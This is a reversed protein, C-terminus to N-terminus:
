VYHYDNRILGNKKMKYYFDDPIIANVSGVNHKVHYPNSTNLSVSSVGPAKLAFNVCANMPSVEFERCIQHFEERWKFLVKNEPMDPKIKKYDYYEGGLLFGAQFVASNIIAIGKEKLQEMFQVLEPPHNMITMSNAFMIWDLEVVDAIKQIVKWNKAGIGIAKVFGLSKLEKLAKYAELIDIFRHEYEKETIANNLYEDPDHVSLLQPIYRKGLLENGQQFCEIIGNYSINQVADFKLGKWVGPEFVPESTTLSTRLWGLKNSIIVKEPEVQLENLIEGLIELSLGAGYKGASDFVVQSDSYLLSESIIEIKLSKPLDAYLNGLASTGFIVKPLQIMTHTQSASNM